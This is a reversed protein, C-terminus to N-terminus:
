TRKRGARFRAYIVVSSTAAAMPLRHTPTGGWGNPLRMRWWLTAAAVWTISAAMTAAMARQRWPGGTTALAVGLDVPVYVPFTALCQGVSTAVGKGGSFGRNAPYCHGLVAGVGAAHQGADGAIRRGLRCAVVSKTIDAAMVSYGWRRGLVAAANAGGPNGTGATRLDVQGNTAVRAALEAFPILGLAYGLAGSSLTAAVGAREPSHTSASMSTM